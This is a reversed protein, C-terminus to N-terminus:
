LKEAIVIDQKALAGVRGAWRGFHIPEVVALGNKAYLDRVFREDLAVVREHVARDQARYDEFRHPFTKNGDKSSAMLREAEANILFYTILCRARRKMVRAIQSLYNEIDKPLMHTFVSNLFVVDFTEDDFPFVYETAAYRGAPNYNRNYVDAVHFRFNPHRTSIADTARAIELPLIDLGDYRGHRDLYRTLALAPGGGGCGVDLVAHHPELRCLTILHPLLREGGIIKRRTVKL